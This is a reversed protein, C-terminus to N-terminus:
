ALLSMPGYVLHDDEYLSVESYGLEVLDEYFETLWAEADTRTPFRQDLTIGVPENLPPTPAVWHFPM